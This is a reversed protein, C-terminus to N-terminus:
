HIDVNFCKCYQPVNGWNAIQEWKNSLDTLQWLWFPEPDGSEVDILSGTPEAKRSLKFTSCHDTKGDHLLNLHWTKNYAKEGDTRCCAFETSILGYEM